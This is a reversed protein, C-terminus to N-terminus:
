SPDTPEPDPDQRVLPKWIGFTHWEDDPWRSAHVRYTVGIELTEFLSKRVRLQGRNTFVDYVDKPLDDTWEESIEMDVIKFKTSKGRKYSLYYRIGFYFALSFTSLGLIGMGAYAFCICLGLVQV